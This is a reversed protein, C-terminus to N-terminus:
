RFARRRVPSGLWCGDPPVIIATFLSREIVASAADATSTSAAGAAALQRCCLVGAGEPVFGVQLRLATDQVPTVVQMLTPLTLPLRRESVRLPSVQVITLRGSGPPPWRGPM